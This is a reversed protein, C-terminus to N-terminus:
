VGRRKELASQKHFIRLPRFHQPIILSIIMTIFKRPLPLWKFDELPNVLRKNVSWVM